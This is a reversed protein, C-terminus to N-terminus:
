RPHCPHWSTRARIKKHIEESCVAIRRRAVRLQLGSRQTPNLLSCYLTQVVLTSDYKRKGQPGLPSVIVDVSSRDGRRSSRPDVGSRAAMGRAGLTFAPGRGARGPQNEFPTDLRANANFRAQTM